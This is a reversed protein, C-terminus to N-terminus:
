SVLKIVSVVRKLQDASMGPWLPFAVLKARLSESVALSWKSTAVRANQHHSRLFPLQHLPWHPPSVEVGMSRATDWAKRSDTVKIPLKWPVDTALDFPIGVGEDRYVQAIARRDAIMQPYAELQALGFAALLEPFEYSYAMDMSYYRNFGGPSNLGVMSKVM